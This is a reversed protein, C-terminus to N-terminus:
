TRGGFSSILVLCAIFLSSLALYLPKVTYQEDLVRLSGKFGRALLADYCANSRALNKIFLNSLLATLSQLHGAFGQYGCRAQQAIYIDRATQLFTGIHMYILGMLDAVIGPLRFLRLVYVLQVVPTTLALLYMASVCALSRFFLNAAEQLSQPSVGWWMGGVYVGACISSSSNSSTIAVTACGVVLFLLPISMLGLYLRWSVRATGILLIFVALIVLSSVMRSDLALVAVMLAITLGLKIAPHLLYWSSNYAAQDIRNM